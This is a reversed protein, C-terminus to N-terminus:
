TFVSKSDIAHQMTYLLVGHALFDYSRVLFLFVLGLIVSQLNLVPKWDERLINLCM